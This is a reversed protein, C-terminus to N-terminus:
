RDDPGAKASCCVSCCFPLSLQPGCLRFYKIQDKVPFTQWGQELDRRSIFLFWFGGVDKEAKGGERFVKKTGPSEQLGPCRTVDGSLGGSVPWWKSARHKDGGDKLVPVQLSFDGLM